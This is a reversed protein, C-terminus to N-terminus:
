EGETSVEAMVDTAVQKALARWEQMQQFDAKRESDKQNMLYNNVVAQMKDSPYAATIIADIIKGRELPHAVRVVHAKTVQVQEPEGGGMPTREETTHEVDFCIMVENGENTVLQPDSDFYRKEM